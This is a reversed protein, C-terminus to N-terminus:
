ETLLLATKSVLDGGSYWETLLDATKSVLRASKDLFDAEYPLEPPYTRRFHVLHFRIRPVKIVLCYKLSPQRVLDPCKSEVKYVQSGASMAVAVSRLDAVCSYARHYTRLWRSTHCLAIKGRGM